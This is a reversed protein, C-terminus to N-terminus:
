LYIYIFIYYINLIVSFTVTMQFLMLREKPRLVSFFQMNKLWQTKNTSVSAPTDDDYILSITGVDNEWFAEEYELFIKAINGFCLKDIVDM